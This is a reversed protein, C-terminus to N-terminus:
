KKEGLDMLILKFKLPFVPNFSEFMNRGSLSNMPFSDGGSAGEVSENIIHPATVGIFRAVKLYAKIIFNTVWFMYILRLYLMYITGVFGTSVLQLSVVGFLANLKM